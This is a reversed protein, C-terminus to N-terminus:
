PLVRVGHRCVPRSGIQDDVNVVGGGARGLEASYANSNVQFEQVTELGLHYGSQGVTVPFGEGGISQGWYDDDSSMGDVLLSNMARQGGFSLGGRVDMTVAPLLLAFSTFDRGNVPLGAISGSDVTASVQSRSTEVLPTEGRVTLDVAQTALRFVLSLTIRGGVRLALHEFVLTAFGAHEARVLYTGVPLVPFQFRGTENTLTMYSAGTELQRASIQVGQIVAGLPDSALGDISGQNGTQPTGPSPFALM